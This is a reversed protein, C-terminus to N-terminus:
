VQKRFLELGLIVEYAPTKQSMTLQLPHSIALCSVFNTKEKAINLAILIRSMTLQLSYVWKPWQLAKQRNNRNLRIKFVKIIARLM